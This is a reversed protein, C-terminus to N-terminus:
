RWRLQKNLQSFCKPVLSILLFHKLCNQEIKNLNGFDNSQYKKIKKSLKSAVNVKNIMSKWQNIVNSYIIEVRSLKIKTQMQFSIYYPIRKEHNSALSKIIQQEFLLFQKCTFKIVKRNITEKWFSGILNEYTEYWLQHHSNYIFYEIKSRSFGSFLNCM